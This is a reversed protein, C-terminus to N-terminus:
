LSTQTARKDLVFLKMGFIEWVWFDRYVAYSPRFWGHITGDWYHLFDLRMTGYKEKIYFGIHYKRLGKEAEDIVKYLTDWHKWDDGWYHM